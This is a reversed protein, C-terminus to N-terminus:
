KMKKSRADSVWQRLSAEPVAGPIIHDGMIFGPTGRIGLSEALEMNSKLVKAVDESAMDKKLRDPDIGVEKALSMVVDEGFGGKHRMLVDQFETYKKQKVSALAARAAYVSEAGLVPLDKYVLKIKGDDKVVRMVADHVSKCYGCRYDFFEVLTVDGKANGGVPSNPDEFIDKKRAVLLKKAEAESQLRQKEELAQIADAILEPNEMLTERLIKKVQEAQKPSLKDEAAYLPLSILSALLLCALFRRM